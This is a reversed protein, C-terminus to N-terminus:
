LTKLLLYSTLQAQPYRPPLWGAPKDVARTWALFSRWAGQNGAAFRSGDGSDPPVGGAIGGGHRSRRRGDGVRGPGARSAATKGPMGLWRVSNEGAHGLLRAM